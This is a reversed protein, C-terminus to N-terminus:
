FPSGGKFQPSQLHGASAGTGHITVKCSAFGANDPCCFTGSTTSSSMGTSCGSMADGTGNSGTSCRYSTGKNYTTPAYPKKGTTTDQPNNSKSWADYTSYWTTTSAHPKLWYYQLFDTPNIGMPGIEGITCTHSSPGCLTGASAYTVSGSCFFPGQPLSKAPAAGGACTGGAAVSVVKKPQLTQNSQGTM